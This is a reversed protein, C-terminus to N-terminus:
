ARNVFRGGAITVEAFAEAPVYLVISTKFSDERSSEKKSAIYVESDFDSPRNDRKRLNIAGCHMFRQTAM